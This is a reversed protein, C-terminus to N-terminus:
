DSQNLKKQAEEVKKEAAKVRSQYEPTLKSGGGALSQRDGEGVVRAAELEANARDLEQGASAGAEAQEMQAGAEQQQIRNAKDIVSRAERQSENLTDEAPAPADINIVSPDANGPVPTDSFTVTGDNDVSRIADAAFVPMTMAKLLIVTIIFKM